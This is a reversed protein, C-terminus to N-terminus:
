RRCLASGAAGAPARQSLVEQAGHIVAICGAVSVANFAIMQHRADGEDYVAGFCRARPLAEPLTHWPAPVQLVSAAHRLLGGARFECCPAARGGCRAPTRGRRCRTQRVCGSPSRARAASCTRGRRRRPQVPRRSRARRATRPRPRRGGRPRSAGVRRRRRRRLRQRGEHPGHDHPGHLQCRLLSSALFFSTRQSQSYAPLMAFLARSGNMMEHLCGAATWPWRM